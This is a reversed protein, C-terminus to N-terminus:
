LQKHTKTQGLTCTTPPPPKHVIYTIIHIYIVAIGEIHRGLLEHYESDFPCERRGAEEVGNALQLCSQESRFELQSKFATSDVDISYIHHGKGRM